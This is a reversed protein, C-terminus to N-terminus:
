KVEEDPKFSSWVVEERNDPLGRTSGCALSDFSFFKHGTYVCSDRGPRKRRQETIKVVVLECGTGEYESMMGKADKVAERVATGEGYFENYTDFSTVVKGKVRLEIRADTREFIYDVEPPPAPPPPIVEIRLLKGKMRVYEGIEPLRPPEKKDSM